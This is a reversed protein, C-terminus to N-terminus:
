SWAKVCAASLDCLGLYFPIVSQHFKGGKGVTADIGLWTVWVDVMGFRM